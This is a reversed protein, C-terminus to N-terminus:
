KRDFNKKFHELTHKITCEVIGLDYTTHACDRPTEQIIKEVENLMEQVFETIKTNWVPSDFLSMNTKNAIETIKNM